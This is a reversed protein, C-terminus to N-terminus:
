ALSQGRADVQGILEHRKLVTKACHLCCESVTVKEGAQLQQYCQECYYDPQEEGVHFVAYYKLGPKTWLHGCCMGFPVLSGDSSRMINKAM